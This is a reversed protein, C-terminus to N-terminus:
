SPDKSLFAEIAKKLYQNPEKSKHESVIKRGPAGGEMLLASIADFKLVQAEEGLMKRMEPFSEEKWLRVAMYAALGRVRLDGENLLNRVKTDLKRGEKATLTQTASWRVLVDDHRMMQIFLDTKSSDWGGAIKSLAIAVVTPNSDQLLYELTKGALISKEVFNVSNSYNLNSIKAEAFGDFHAHPDLFYTNLYYKLATGNDHKKTRFFAATYAQIITSNKGLDAAKVFYQEALDLKKDRDALVALYFWLVAANPHEKTAEALLEKAKEPETDLLRKIRMDYSEAATPYKQEFDALLKKAKEPTNQRHYIEALAGVSSFRKPEKELALKLLPEANTFDGRSIYIDALHIIIKIDEPSSLHLKVYKAEETKSNDLPAFGGFHLLFAADFVDTEFRQRRANELIYFAQITNGRSRFYKALEMHPGPAFFRMAWDNRLRVLEPDTAQSQIIGPNFLCVATFILLVFKTRFPALM